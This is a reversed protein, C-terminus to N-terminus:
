QDGPEEVHGVALDVDGAFRNVRWEGVTPMTKWPLTSTSQARYAPCHEAASRVSPGGRRPRRPARACGETRPRGAPSRRV